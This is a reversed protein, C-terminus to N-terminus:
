IRPAMVDNEPKSDQPFAGPYICDNISISAILTAGVSAEDAEITVESQPKSTDTDLNPDTTNLTMEGERWKNEKNTEEATVEYKAPSPPPLINAHQMYDKSDDDYDDLCIVADLAGECDKCIGVYLSGRISDASPSGVNQTTSSTCTLDPEATASVEVSGIWENFTTIIYDDLISNNATKLAAFLNLPIGINYGCNRELATIQDTNNM